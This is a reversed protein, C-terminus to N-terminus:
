NWRHSTCTMLRPVASTAPPNAASSAAAAEMPVWSDPQSQGPVHKAGRGPQYQILTEVWVHEIRVASIKGGSVLAVNPIGGQGLVQQAADITKAGGVWNMMQDAPVEVSGYVYRAPIGASRLLAILLSATDMANGAKKDLTDQAGQVSGQTPQWYINDHVWQYIKHPNKGLDAALKQIAATHPNRFFRQHRRQCPHMTPSAVSIAGEVM